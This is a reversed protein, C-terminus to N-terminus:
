SSTALCLVQLWRRQQSSHHHLWAFSKSMRKICLPHIGGTGPSSYVNHWLRLKGQPQLAWDAFSAPFPSDERRTQKGKGAGMRIDAGDSPSCGRMPARSTHGKTGTIFTLMSSHMVQAWTKPCRKAASSPTGPSNPGLVEAQGMGLRMSGATSFIYVKQLLKVLHRKSGFQCFWVGSPSTGGAGAWCHEGGARDQLKGTRLPPVPPSCSLGAWWGHQLTRPVEQSPSGPLVQSPTM